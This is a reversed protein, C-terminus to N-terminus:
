GIAAELAGMSQEAETKVTTYEANQKDRAETAEKQSAKNSAIDKNLQAIEAGHTATEGELKVILTQLEEIKVKADSIDKAKRALTDECWCANKDYSQQEAKGDGEIRAKLENLLKLVKLVPSASAFTGSVVTVGLSFLVVQTLGKM